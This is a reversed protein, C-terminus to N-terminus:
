DSTFFELEHRLRKKDALRELIRRIRCHRQAEGHEPLDCAVTEEELLDDPFELLYDDYRSAM